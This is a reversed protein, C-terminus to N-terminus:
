PLDLVATKCPCTFSCESICLICLRCQSSTQSVLNTDSAKALECLVQRSPRLRPFAGHTKAADTYTGALQRDTVTPRLACPYHLRMTSYQQAESSMSNLPDPRRTAWGRDQTTSESTLESTRITLFGRHLLTNNYMESPAPHVDPRCCMVGAVSVCCSRSRLCRRKICCPPAPENM